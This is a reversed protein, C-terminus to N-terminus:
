FIKYLNDFSPITERSSVNNVFMEYDNSFGNLTIPVMRENSIKDGVDHLSERIEKIKEIYSFVSEGKAMRSVNLNNTLLMRRSM